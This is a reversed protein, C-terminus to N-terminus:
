SRVLGKTSLEDKPDATSTRATFELPVKSTVVLGIVETVEMGGGGAETMFSYTSDLSLKEISFPPRSQLVICFNSLKLLILASVLETTSTITLGIGVVLSVINLPM